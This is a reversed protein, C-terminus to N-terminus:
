FLGGGLSGLDGLLGTLGDGLGGLSGLDSLSGLSGLSGLDSLPSAGSSPDFYGQLDGLGFNLFYEAADTANAMGLADNISSASGIFDATNPDLAGNNELAYLEVNFADDFKGLAGNLLNYSGPDSALGAASPDVGYTLFDFPTTGTTGQVTAVDAPTIIDFPNAANALTVDTAPVGALDTDLTFLANLSSIESDVTTTIETPDAAAIPGLALAAGVTFGGIVAIKRIDM